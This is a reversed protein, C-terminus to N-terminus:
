KFYNQLENFINNLVIPKKEFKETGKKYFVLVPDVWEGVRIRLTEQMSEIAIDVRGDQRRFVKPLAFDIGTNAILSLAFGVCVAAAYVSPTIDQYWCEETFYFPQLLQGLPALIKQYVDWNIVNKYNESLQEVKDPLFMDNSINNNQKNSFNESNIEDHSPNGLPVWTHTNGSSHFEYKLYYDDMRLDRFSMLIAPNTPSTTYLYM